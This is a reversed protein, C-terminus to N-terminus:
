EFILNEKSKLEHVGIKYAANVWKLQRLSKLIESEDEMFDEVKFFYDIQPLEPIVFGNNSRNKLLSYFANDEENHYFFVPHSSEMESHYICIDEEDRYLNVGLELNLAWCLRYDKEHCSIGFLIFDFDYEVDLKLM